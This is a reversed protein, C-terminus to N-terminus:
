LCIEDYLCLPGLDSQELHLLRIPPWVTQKLFMKFPSSSLLATLITM